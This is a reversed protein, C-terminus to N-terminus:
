DPDLPAGRAQPELRQWLAKDIRRDTAPKTIVFILCTTLLVLGFLLPMWAWFGYNAPDYIYRSGGNRGAVYPLLVRLLPEFFPRNSHMAASLFAFAITGGTGLLAIGRRTDRVKAISQDVYRLPRKRNM